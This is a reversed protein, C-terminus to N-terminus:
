LFWYFSWNSFRFGTVPSCTSVTIDFGTGVVSYWVTHVPLVLECSPLSETSANQNNGSVVDGCNLAIANACTDNSPQALSQTTLFTRWFFTLFAM